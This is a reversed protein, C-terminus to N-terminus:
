RSFVNTLMSVILDTVLSAMLVNALLHDRLIWVNLELLVHNKSVNTLTQVHLEMERTDATVHASLAESQIQVPQLSRAPIAEQKVSMSMKAHKAMALSDLIVLVNFDAKQISVLQTKMADILMKVNMSTMVLSGMAPSVRNATVSIIALNLTASLTATANMIILALKM